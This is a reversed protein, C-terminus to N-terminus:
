RFDRLHRWVALWAGGLTLAATAGVVCLAVRWDPLQLAFQQGYARALEVVAPNLRALMLWVLLCALAGGLVGQVLAFHIFPRRIFADTAGILRAVEIEERRTLIQMRIANGTVLLLTLALLVALVDFLGRGLEILRQLRQAWASDAQIEAVLPHGGLEAQLAALPAAATGRLTLVFADPLPNDGLGATLGSTGTANELQRLAEDRPVYRIKALEPRAALAKELQKTAAADREAKLFLTLQPEVPLRNAVGGASALLLWLLMPLAAAIAIVLLNLLSSVPQRLLGLLTHRLARTHQRFWNKM